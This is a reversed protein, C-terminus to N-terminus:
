EGRTHNKGAARHHQTPPSLVKAKLFFDLPTLDPSRPPWEVPQNLAVIRDGFLEQLRAMVDTGRHPRTDDHACWLHKFRGNQQRWFREREDLVQVIQDNIMQLYREGNINQQFFFAGVTSWRRDHRDVCNAKTSM